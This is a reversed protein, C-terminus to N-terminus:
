SENTKDRFMRVVLVGLVFMLISAGTTVDRDLFPSADFM